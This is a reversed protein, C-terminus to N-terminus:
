SACWCSLWTTSATTACWPSWGSASPSCRRTGKRQLRWSMDATLCQISLGVDTGVDTRLACPLFTPLAFIAFVCISENEPYTQPRPEMAHVNYSRTLQAQSHPSPLACPDLFLDVV